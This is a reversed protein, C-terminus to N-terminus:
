LSKYQIFKRSLKDSKSIQNTRNWIYIRWSSHNWWVIFRALLCYLSNKMNNKPLDTKKEYGTEHIWQLYVIHIHPLISWETCVSKQWLVMLQRLQWVLSICFASDIYVDIIDQHLLKTWAWPFWRRWIRFIKKRVM